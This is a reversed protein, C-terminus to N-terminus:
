AAAAMSQERRQLAIIGASTAEILYSRNWALDNNNPKFTDTKPDHKYLEPIYGNETLIDMVNQMRDLGHDLERRSATPHSAALEIAKKFGRLTNEPELFGAGRHGITQIM